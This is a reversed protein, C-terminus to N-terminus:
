NLRKRFFKNKTSFYCYLFPLSFLGCILSYSLCSSSEQTLLYSVLSCILLLSFLIALSILIMKLCYCYSSIKLGKIISILITNYFIHIIIFIFNINLKLILSLIYCSLSLIISTIISKKNLTIKTPYLLIFSIIYCILSIIPHQNIIESLAILSFSYSILCLYSKKM